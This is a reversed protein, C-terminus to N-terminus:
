LENIVREKFYEMLEKYNEIAEEIPRPDLKESGRDQKQEVLKSSDWPVGLFDYIPQVYKNDSLEEYYVIRWDRHEELFLFVEEEKDRWYTFFEEAEKIPIRIPSLKSRKRVAESLTLGTEEYCGWSSVIKSSLLTALRNRRLLLIVKVDSYKAIDYHINQKFKALFGILRIDTRNTKFGIEYAWDFGKNGVDGSSLDSNCHIDKHANLLYRLYHSGTRQQSFIIFKNM